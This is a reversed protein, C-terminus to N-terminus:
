VIRPGERHVCPHWPSGGKRVEFGQVGAEEHVMNTKRSPRWGTTSEREQIYKVIEAERTKSEMVIWMGEVKEREM